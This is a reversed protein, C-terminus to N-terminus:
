VSDEDLKAGQGGDLTLEGARECREIESPVSTPCRKLSCPRRWGPCDSHHTTLREGGRLESYVEYVGAVLM